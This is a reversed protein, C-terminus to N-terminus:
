SCHARRNVHDADAMPQDQACRTLAERWIMLERENLRRIELATLKRIKKRTRLICKHANVWSRIKLPFSKWLVHGQLLKRVEEFKEFWVDDNVPRLPLDRAKFAIIHPDRTDYGIQAFEDWQRRLWTHNSETRKPLRGKDKKFQAVEDLQFDWRGTAKRMAHREEARGFNAMGGRAYRGFWQQYEVSYILTNADVEM